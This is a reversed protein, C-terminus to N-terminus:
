VDREPHLVDPTPAMDSGAGRGPLMQSVRISDRDYAIRKGEAEAEARATVDIEDDGFWRRLIQTFRM